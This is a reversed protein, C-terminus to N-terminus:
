DRRRLGPLGALLDGIGAPPARGLEAASVVDVSSTVTDLSVAYPAATIIVEAPDEAKAPSSIAANSVGHTLGLAASSALLLNRVLIAM